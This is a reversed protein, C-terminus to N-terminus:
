PLLGAKKYYDAVGPHLMDTAGAVAALTNKATTEALPKSLQGKTEARHLASALRFGLPKALDARALVFSWTGVTQLAAIQGRYLAAPIALETLFPYKARVRKIEEANPVIFRGGRANNAVTVFSPWRLSGCWLAAARGDIVLQPGDTLQDIYIPQVDKEMDLGLGDMVYRAQVALGSKRGNWVVPQGVLDAIGHYRTDARVVFMGPTGFMAAIVKLKTVPRGIGAFLEHAVEGAVLGIDLDGAELQPVNDVTGQTPVARIELTPDILRMADIFASGYIVFGGGEQATGFKLRAGQAFAPSGALTLAPALAVFARRRIPRM